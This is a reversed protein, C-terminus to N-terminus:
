VLLADSCTGRALSTKFFASTVLGNKEQLVGRLSAPAWGVSPASFPLICFPLRPPSFSLLLLLLGLLLLETLLLLLLKALLLLLLKALLLEV